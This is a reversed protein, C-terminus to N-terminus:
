AVSTENTKVTKLKEKFARSAEQPNSANMIASIVAIGNMGTEALENINELTIGGALFVPLSTMEKAKRVTEKSVIECVGASPSPFMSCFSVYDLKNETAWRIRALDNGCTIGLIFPRNITQRIKPLDEPVADFHVGDLDTSVLLEWEENILVPIERAHAERCVAAIFAQRDQQLSWHNWLQIVDAGGEIAKKLTPLVADLGPAPDIVLYLGGEIKRKVDM